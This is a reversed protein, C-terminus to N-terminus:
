CVTFPPSLINSRFFFSQIFPFIRQVSLFLLKSPLSFYKSCLLFYNSSCTFIFIFYTLDAPLKEPYPMAIPKGSANAFEVVQLKSILFFNSRINAVTTETERDASGITLTFYSAVTTILYSFSAFTTDTLAFIQRFFIKAILAKRYPAASIAM